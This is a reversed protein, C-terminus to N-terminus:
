TTKQSIAREGNVSYMARGRENFMDREAPTLTRWILFQKRLYNVFRRNVRNWSPVDGSERTVLLSMGFLGKENPVPSSILTVLESVGLDYPALWVMTELMFRGSDAWFDVRDIYFDSASEDRHSEFFHALFANVGELEEDMLTFPLAFFWEDGNPEPLKWTRAIDPVSIESAKKAPYITSLIVTIMVILTSVIASLSSYNLTVGGLLGTKYIVQGVTQGLLYGAIAGLVAYVVAEAMFLMAIHSPALGVSSFIGIERTREFVAGLMTNLVILAAILIPILVDKLGGLTTLGIASYLFTGENQGVYMELAWKPIVRNVLGLAANSDPTKIAVSVLGGPLLNLPMFMCQAPVLHIFSDREGATPAKKAQVVQSIRDQRKTEVLAWNVSTLEEGDIDKLQRLLEDDVIGIVGYRVGDMIIRPATDEDGTVQERTIGLADAATQPIVLVRFDGPQFWRGAVGTKRFIGTVEDEQPEMGVFGSLTYSKGNPASLTFLNSTAGQILAERWGRGVVINERGFENRISTLTERPWFNWFRDRILVGSYTPKQSSLRVKNVRLLEQVSTFSLVTFTLLILTLCTLTTRVKRKRMNSVGLLFAAFMASVRGVDASLYGQQEKKIQKMQATFKGIIISVVFLSLAFVTFALLVMPPALTIDFAPHVQQILVFMLIFIAFFWIAQKKVDTSGIILREVFFAFPLLLAMYFLVGKLAGNAIGLVDPLVRSELALATRAETLYTDYRKEDLAKKALALRYASSDHVARTEADIIGHRVLTVLRGENLQWMDRAAQYATHTLLAEREVKFGLGQRHEPIQISDPTGTLMMRVGLLGQAFIIKVRTGEEVFFTNDGMAVHSFYHWPKSDTRAEYIDGRALFQFYRPDLVDTVSVSACPFVVVTWDQSLQSVSPVFAYQKSGLDIAFRVNGSDPSTKYAHLWQPDASRAAARGDLPLGVFEFAGRRNTITTFRYGGRDAIVVASDVPQDATVSAQRDDYLVLGSSTAFYDGMVMDDPLLPDQLAQGTIATLTRMQTLSGPINVRAFTDRLSSLEPAIDGTTSLAIAPIGALSAIESTFYRAAPLFNWWAKGPTGAVGDVFRRDGQLGLFGIFQNLTDLQGQTLQAPPITRWPAIKQFMVLQQSIILSDQRLKNLTAPVANIINEAFFEPAEVMEVYRKHREAALRIKTKEERPIQEANILLDTHNWILQDIGHHIKETNKWDMGAILAYGTLGLGAVIGAIQWWAPLISTEDARRRRYAFWGCVGALVLGWAWATANVFRQYWDYSYNVETDSLAIGAVKRYTEAKASIEAIKALILARIQEDSRSWLGNLDNVVVLNTAYGMFRKGLPGYDRQLELDPQQNYFYGKHFLGINNSNSTLSLDILLAPYRGLIPEILALDSRLRELGTTHDDPSMRTFKQLAKSIDTMRAAALRGAVSTRIKGEDAEVIPKLRARDNELEGVFDELLRGYDAILPECADLARKFAPKFREAAEEMAGVRVRRAYYLAGGTRKEAVAGGKLYEARANQLDDWYRQATALENGVVDGLRRELALARERHAPLRGSLKRDSILRLDARLRELNQRLAGPYSQKLAQVFVRGGEMVGSRQGNLAAFYLSRPPREKAFIRALELQAASSFAAEAGPALGPVNSGADFPATIVVVERSLVPDSGPLFGTVSYGTLLRWPQKAHITIETNPHAAAWARLSDGDQRNVWFRPFNVSTYFQASITIKPSEIFIAAKSGLTSALRWREEVTMEALLVSGEMEHGNYERAEGTRSYVLHGKLGGPPITNTHAFNPAYCRLPITDYAGDELPLVAYAYEQRADAVTVRQRSVKQMGVSDFTAAIYDTAAENGATGIERTPYRSLLEWSRMFRASDIQAAHRSGIEGLEVASPDRRYQAGVPSLAGMLCAVFFTIRAAGRVGYATGRLFPLRIRTM